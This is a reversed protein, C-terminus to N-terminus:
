GDVEMVVKGDDVKAVRAREFLEFIRQQLEYDRVNAYVLDYVLPEVIAKVDDPDLAPSVDVGEVKLYRQGAVLRRDGDEIVKVREKQLYGLKVFVDCVVMVDWATIFGENSKMCTEFEERSILGKRAAEYLEDTTPGPQRRFKDTPVYEFDDYVVM